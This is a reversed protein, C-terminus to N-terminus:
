RSPGGRPSSSAWGPRWRTPPGPPASPGARAAVAARARAAPRRGGGDVPGAPGRGAAAARPPHAGGARPRAPRGAPHGLRRRRAARGAPRPRAGAGRGPARGAPLRGRLPVARRLRVAPLARVAVAARHHGRRGPDRRVGAVAARGRSGPRRLRGAPVRARDRARDPLDPLALGGRAPVRRAPAAAVAAPAPRPPPPAPAARAGRVRPVPGRVPRLRRAPRHRAAAGLGPRAAAGRAGGAGLRPALRRPRRADPARRGGVTRRRLRADAARHRRRGADGPRRARAPRADGGVDGAGVARAGPCRLPLPGRGALRRARRPVARGRDHPRRPRSRHGRAARAPVRDPQGVGVPRARRHGAPRAGARRPARRARPRVRRRRPRARAPPRDPRRALVPATRAPRAGPHRAGPRPHHGRDALHLRRPHVRRGGAVRLGDGRRARRGPPRGAQHQGGGARHRHRPVGRVPRPRPHHRRQHGRAAARGAPRVPHRRDPGVGRAAAARRVGREPVPGLAHRAGVRAGPPQPHRVAGRPARARAARRRGLRRAGDDGGRAPRARRAPELAGAAGRDARQADARHDRGDDGPRGPVQPVDRRPQRRGGPARRPRRAAARQVRQAAVRGARRPRGRGHRHRARAVLHGGRHAAPRVEPRGRDAGAAGQLGLRPARPGAGRPRGELRRVAGDGRGPDADRRGAARDDGDPELAALREAWTENLRATLREALRRSNTFVLSSRSPQGEVPAVLDVVREEVHPWISQTAPAGAANGSLDPSGDDTTVPQGLETMDEVPVVVSLDWKKESPPQVVTVPRGGDAGPERQGALFRAVEEVPRVTASLGIRQAPQELLADLRELSLALHAGRKTGAVAHVEDVIVTEVGALQERARSTLLLFLSEPTTILVDPPRTTFARRESAPTDGSRM